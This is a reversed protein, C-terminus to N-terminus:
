SIVRQVNFGGHIEKGFHSSWQGKICSSDNDLEGEYMWGHKPYLKIYKMTKPPIAQGYIDFSAISDEGSGSFLILGRQELGSKEKSVSDIRFSTEGDDDGPDYKSEGYTYHGTWEGILAQKWYDLDFESDLILGSDSQAARAGDGKNLVGHVILMQALKASSMGSSYCTDELSRLLVNDFDIGRRGEDLLVTVVERSNQRVAVRLASSMGRPCYCMDAGAALLLRVTKLERNEVAVRLLLDVIIERARPFHKWASNLALRKQANTGWPTELLVREEAESWLVQEETSYEEADKRIKGVIHRYIIRHDIKLALALLDKFIETSISLDTLNELMQQVRGIEGEDLAIKMRIIWSEKGSPTSEEYNDFLSLIEIAGSRMAIGFPMRGNSDPTLPSSKHRLLLSACSHSNSFVAYHLPTRGAEDKVHVTAGRDILLQVMHELGCYCATHLPSAGENDKQGIDAKNDLLVKVLLENDLEIALQLPTQLRGEENADAGKELLYKTVLVNEAYLAQVLPTRGSRSITKLSAGSEVLKQVTLLDGLGCAHHLATKGHSDSTNLEKCSKILEDFIQTSGLLVAAILPTGYTGGTQSPNAQHKVLTEVATIHQHVVAAQLPTGLKGGRVNCDYGNEALHDVIDALGLLAAYYVPTPSIDSKVTLRQDTSSDDIDSDDLEEESGERSEVDYEQTQARHLTGYGSDADHYFRQKSMVRGMLDRVCNEMEDEFFQAWLRWCHRNFFACTRDFTEGRSHSSQGQLYHEHWNSVSYLYFPYTGTFTTKNMEKESEGGTKNYSMYQLCLSAMWDQETSDDGFCLKRDSQDMCFPSQLLYEKVSFHVFHVTQLSLPTDKDRKRIEILPGCYKRINEAIYYEILKDDTWSHPLDDDPYKSHDDNFTLAIAEAMEQVTLPRNAFMIWKLIVVNRAVIEKNAKHDLMRNLEKQYTENIGQPTESVLKEVNKKTTGNALEKTLMYMWLFMGDSKESAKSALATRDVEHLMTLKSTFAAKSFSSIDENTDEKTIPHDIMAISELEKMAVIDRDYRSVLLVLAGTEELSKVLGDLFLQRCDKKHYPPSDTSFRTCEDYGDVVLTCRPTKLIMKRFLSWLYDQDEESAEDGPNIKEKLDPDEMAVTAADDSRALLQWVWSKLISFPHQRTTKEASCFFSYVQGYVDSENEMHEVIRACLVSKGFGPPGYLWFVGPVNKKHDSWELFKSNQLIWNCTSGHRLKLIAKRADDTSTPHLWARIAKRSEEILNVEKPKAVLMKLEGFAAM